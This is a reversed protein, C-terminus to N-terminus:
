EKHHEQAQEVFEGLLMSLQRIWGQAMDSCFELALKLQHQETPDKVSDVSEIKEHSMRVIVLMLNTMKSRLDSRLATCREVRPEIDPVRGECMERIAKAATDLMSIDDKTFHGRPYREVTKGIGEILEFSPLIRLEQPNSSLMHVGYYM